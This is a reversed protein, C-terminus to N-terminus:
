LKLTENNRLLATFFDISEITNNEIQEDRSYLKEDKM